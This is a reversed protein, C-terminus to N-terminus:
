TGLHGVSRRTRADVRASEILCGAEDPAEARSRLRLYSVGGFADSRQPLTLVSQGNVEVNCARKTLDWDLSLTSWAESELTVDETLQGNAPIHLRFAAETEGREDGPNFFRDNLCVDAGAFGQRPFIRL